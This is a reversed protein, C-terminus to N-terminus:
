FILGLTIVAVSSNSDVGEFTNTLGVEYSFDVTLLALDLGLGLNASLQFDNLLDKDYNYVDVTKSGTIHAPILGGRLHLIWLRRRGNFYWGFNIPAKIMTIRSAEEFTGLQENSLTLNYSQLFLGPQVFVLGYENRWDAGIVLGAKGVINTGDINVNLNSIASGAKPALRRAQAEGMSPLLMLLLIIVAFYYSGKRM